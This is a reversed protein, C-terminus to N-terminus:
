FDFWICFCTKKLSIRTTSHLFMFVELHPAVNDAERILFPFKPNLETLENFNSLVFARFLFLLYVDFLIMYFCCLPHSSKFSWKIKNKEVHVSRTGASSPTDNCCRLTVEMLNRSLKSRWSMERKYSYFLHHTQARTQHNRRRLSDVLWLGQLPPNPPVVIYLIDRM